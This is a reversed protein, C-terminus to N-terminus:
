HHERDDPHPGEHQPPPPRQERPERQPPAARQAPPERQEPVARQAPAERQAPAARPTPAERQEPAARPTPAERQEPAARREPAARTTQPVRQAPEDRKAPMEARASAERQEPAQGHAAPREAGASRAAVHAGSFDGARATAAIAPRGHNENYHLAPDTRAMEVHSRQTATAEVHPGRAAALQAASPRSRIGGAGGNYSVHTSVNTIQRNYVNTIHVGGFNNVSRNYFLRGGRWYGGQFGAGSYGFGYNIGGYFGVTPGWYGEHWVFAEGDAGWYGPTWLYGPTPPLIWTGPVWYYGGDDAWAWYGPTWLYGVDPLAPQEYVPLAPPALNVSINLSVQASGLIPAALLLAALVTRIYSKMDSITVACALCSGDTAGCLTAYSLVSLAPPGPTHHSM